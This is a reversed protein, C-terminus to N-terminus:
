PTAEWDDENSYFTAQSAFFVAISLTAVITFTLAM